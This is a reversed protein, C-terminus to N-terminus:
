FLMGIRASTFIVHFGQRNKDQHPDATLGEARKM